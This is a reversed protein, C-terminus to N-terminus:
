FNLFLFESGDCVYNGYEDYARVEVKHIGILPKNLTWNYPPQSTVNYELVNDLYLEFKASNEAYVDFTIPGVVITKGVNSIIRQTIRSSKINNNLYFQHGFRFEPKTVFVMLETCPPLDEDPVNGLWAVARRHIWWNYSMNKSTVNKWIYVARPIGLLNKGILEEITGNLSVTIEPHSSFLVIRGSNNYTTAIGGYQNKLDTKVQESRKFGILVKKYFYIPKTEMLEEIYTFLPDINGLKEDDAGAPYMGAGGGYSINFIDKPAKSFIPNATNKNVAIEIPVLESYISEKLLYQLEGDFDDNLYIDAIKLVGENVKNEFYNDPNEYGQSAVFAGACVGLYGGGDSLFQEVTQRFEQDLGDKLYANFNAGVIFVDYNEITLPREGRGRLEEYSLERVDFHYIKGNAEWTYNLCIYIREDSPTHKPYMGVRITQNEELENLIINNDKLTLASINFSLSIIAFTLIISLLIKKM